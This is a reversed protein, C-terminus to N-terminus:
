LSLQFRLSQKQMVERFESYNIIKYGGNAIMRDDKLKNDAYGDLWFSHRTTVSCSDPDAPEQKMIWEWRALRKAPSLKSLARPFWAYGNLLEPWNAGTNKLANELIFLMVGEISTTLDFVSASLLYKHCGHCM